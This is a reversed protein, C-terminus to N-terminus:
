ARGRTATADTQHTAERLRLGALGIALADAGDDPEPIRSLRLTAAIARQMQAKGPRGSGTIMKKAQTAPVNIIELDLRGALALIVGRAHAMLIATRPHKYHAYLAECALSTPQHTNVLTELSRELEVLRRELPDERRLRIVGAEILKVEEDQGTESLFAYGTRLLGTDIGLIVGRRNDAVGAPDPASRDDPRMCADHAIESM